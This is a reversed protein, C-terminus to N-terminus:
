RLLVFTIWIDGSMQNLPWAHKPCSAQKLSCRGNMDNMSHLTLKQKPPLTYVIAISLILAKFILKTGVSLIVNYLQKFMSM